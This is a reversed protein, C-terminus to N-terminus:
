ICNPYYKKSAKNYALVADNLNKFSGLHISKGKVNIRTRYKVYEKITGDKKKYRSIHLDIGKPYKGWNRTNHMNEGRTSIRLNDKQNNLGNRDKHDLEDYDNIGYNNAIANHMRITKKGNEYCTRVAYFTYNKDRRHASWKWQSLFDYDNDDVLAYQGQTLKIKKMQKFKFAYLLNYYTIPRRSWM